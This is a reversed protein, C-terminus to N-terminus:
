DDFRLFIKKFPNRLCLGTTELAGLEPAGLFGDRTSFCVDGRELFEPNGRRMNSESFSVLGDIHDIGVVM